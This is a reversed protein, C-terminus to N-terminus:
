TQKVPEIASCLWDSIAELMPDVEGDEIKLELGAVSGAQCMVQPINSDRKDHARPIDAEVIKARSKGTRAEQGLRERGISQQVGNGPCRCGVASVCLLAAGRSAFRRADVKPPGRSLRNRRAHPVQDPTGCGRHDRLGSFSGNSRSAIRAPAQVCSPPALMAELSPDVM